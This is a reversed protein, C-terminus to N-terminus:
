LNHKCGWCFYGKAGVGIRGGSHLERLLSKQLPDTSAAQLIHSRPCTVQGRQAKDEEHSSISTFADVEPSTTFPNNVTTLPHLLNILRRARAQRSTPLRRREVQFAGEVRVGGSGGQDRPRSARPGRELPTPHPPSAALMPPLARASRYNGKKSAIHLPLMGDKNAKNADAGQSLLFEM